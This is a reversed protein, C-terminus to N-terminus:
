FLRNLFKLILGPTTRSDIRYGTGSRKIYSSRVGKKIAPELTKRLAALAVHFRQASKKPDEEPWLLEMLIEKDLYGKKAHM